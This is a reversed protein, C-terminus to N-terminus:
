SIILGDKRVGEGNIHMRADSSRVRHMDNELGRRRSDLEEYPPVMGERRALQYERRLQQIRDM